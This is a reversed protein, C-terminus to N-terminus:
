ARDRIVTGAIVHALARRASDVDEPTGPTVLELALGNVAALLITAAQRSDTLVPVGESQLLSLWRTVRSRAQDSFTTVASVGDVDAGTDLVASYGALWGRLQPIDSSTSPLFQQMCETLRVGPSVSRDDIRLDGLQADFVERLVTELLQRQTPFYYRLTSAGIGVHTAVNRVTVDAMGASFAIEKAAQVIETRRSM